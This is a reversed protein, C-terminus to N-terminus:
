ITACPTKGPNRRRHTRSQHTKNPLTQTRVPEGEDTVINVGAAAPTLDQAIEQEISRGARRPREM